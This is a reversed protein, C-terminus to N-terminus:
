DKKEPKALKISTFIKEVQKANKEDKWAGFIAGGQDQDVIEVRLVTFDVPKEDVRDIAKGNAEVVRGLSKDYSAEAVAFDGLTVDKFVMALLADRTKALSEEFDEQWRLVLVMAGREPAHALIGKRSAAVEWGEPFTINAGTTGDTMKLGGKGASKRVQLDKLIAAVEDKHAPTKWAGLVLAGADGSKVVLASFDVAAGDRKSVGTGDVAILAEISGREDVGVVASRAVAVDDLRELILAKVDERVADYDQETAALLIFGSEDESLATFAGESKAFSWGEPLTLTAGTEPEQLITGGEQQFATTSAAAALMAPLLALM